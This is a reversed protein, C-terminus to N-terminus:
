ERSEGTLKAIDVGVVEYRMTGDTEIQMPSDTGMLKRRSESIKRRTEIAALRPGDDLTLERRTKDDETYVTIWRVHETDMIQQARRDLEDLRDLEAQRHRAKLPDVIDACEQTIRQGVTTKSLEYGLDVLSRAAIARVSLGNLKHEYAWEQERAVQAPNNRASPNLAM